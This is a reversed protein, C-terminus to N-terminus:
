IKRGIAVAYLLPMNSWRLAEEDYFAGIGSCGIGNREALLYLGHAYMGAEIHSHSNFRVSFILSVVSANSIFRQELLLHVADASFNGNQIKKGSRYVGTHMPHAVIHLVDLSESHPLQLIERISEAKMTQPSFDRASRRTLNVNEDWIPQILPPYDTYAGERAVAETLKPDRYLYDCPPVIMLPSELPVAPKSSPEGVAFVSVIFEDEGMGMIRSLGLIDIDSLKTTPLGFFNMIYQLAAIQHGLDLYVYRWARLAYKWASRFPVVSFMVVCGNFRRDIGIYPEIGDREIESILVISASATDWHYMGDLIGSVNRIQLYMELPHLNGASPVNLRYYPKGSVTHRDTICRVQGLWFLPSARDIAIRYCFDPYRKFVSPQTRWELFTTKRAVLQPTLLTADRM